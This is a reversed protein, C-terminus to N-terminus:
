EIQELGDLEERLRKLVRSKAIYVAGPSIGLDAAVDAAKREEITVQWFAQWSPETFEVRVLDMTRRLVERFEQLGEPSHPVYPDPVNQLFKQATSGGIGDPATARNRWVDRVKNRAIGYLWGRFSDDPCERRFQEIGKTVAHFVEQSVDEASAGLLGMRRCWGQVLPEYLHILRRWADPDNARVRRLLSSDTPPEGGLAGPLEDSSDKVFRGVAIRGSRAIGM